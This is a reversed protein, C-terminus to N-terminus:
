SALAAPQLEVHYGLSTLQRVLRKETAQRQQEEFFAEGKEQYTTRKSLLHYIIVL